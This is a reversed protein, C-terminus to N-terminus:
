TQEHPKPPPIETGCRSCKVPKGRDDTKVLQVHKCKPCKRGLDLAKKLASYFIWM